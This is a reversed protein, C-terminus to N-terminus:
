LSLLVKLLQERNGLNSHTESEVNAGNFHLTAGDNDSFLIQGSQKEWIKNEGWAGWPKKWKKKIPEWVGDMFYIAFRNGVTLRHDRNMESSEVEVLYMAAAKRKLTRKFKPEDYLNTYMELFPAKPTADGYKDKWKKFCEQM